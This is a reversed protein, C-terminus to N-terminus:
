KQNEKKVRKKIAELEEWRMWGGYKLNRVMWYYITDPYQHLFLKRKVRSVQDPNGKVDIVETHGDKYQCVYDAIYQIPRVKNGEFDICEKQLIFPVQRKYSVITGEEMLPILVEKLYNLETLSDFIEGNYTRKNKGAVTQDVGYKSRKRRM